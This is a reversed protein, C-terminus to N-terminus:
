LRALRRLTKRYKTIFDSPFPGGTRYFLVSDVGNIDDLELDRRIKKITEVSAERGEDTYAVQTRLPKTRSRGFRGKAYVTRSINMRNGRGGATELSCNFGRLIRRLRRWQVPREGKEVNRSHDKIWEAIWLAERDSLNRGRPVIQHQALRLALKFLENESSELMSGNEDLLVLMSVLGTRKNGDYFPHDHVVSHLLAAAAMEITPYKMEEGISTHQRFVASELLDEARVGAMQIPDRDQAFDRVLEEHIQKVEGASLLRLERENPQGIVRWENPEEGDPIELEDPHLQAVPAPRTQAAVARKLKAIAGKPLTKARPSLSIELERLLADFEEKEKGLLQMWHAPSTLEKRTPVGLARKARQADRGLIVDNPAEYGDLGADWLLILAEEVDMRASSALDAVTLRKATM